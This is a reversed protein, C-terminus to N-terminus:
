SKSSPSAPACSIGHHILPRPRYLNRTWDCPGLQLSHAPSSAWPLSRLITGVINLCAGQQRPSHRVRVAVAFDGDADRALGELRVHDFARFSGNFDGLCEFLLGSREDGEVFMRTAQEHGLAWVASEQERLDRDLVGPVRGFEQGLRAHFRAEQGVCPELGGGPDVLELGLDERFGLGATGDHAPGQLRRTRTMLPRTNKRPWSSGKLMPISSFPWIAAILFTRRPSSCISWPSASIRGPHTSRWTWMLSGPSRRLSSKGLPVREAAIPPTVVTASM